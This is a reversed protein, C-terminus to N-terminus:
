INFNSFLKTRRVMINASTLYFLWALITTVISIQSAELNISHSFLLYTSAFKTILYSIESIGLTAVLKLMITKTSLKPSLSGTHVRRKNNEFYYLIMFLSNFILFDGILSLLAIEFYSNDFITSVMVVIVMDCIATVIASFIINKNFDVINKYNQYFNKVLGLLRM